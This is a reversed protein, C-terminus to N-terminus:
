VHAGELQVASPIETATVPVQEGGPGAFPPFILLSLMFGLASSTVLVGFWLTASGASGARSCRSASSSSAGSSRRSAPRSCASAAWATRAEDGVLRAILFDGAMGALVLSPISSGSRYGSLMAFLLALGTFMMTLTGVPLTWRRRMMLM